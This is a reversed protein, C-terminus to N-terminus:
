VAKARWDFLADEDEGDEDTEGESAGGLVEQLVDVVRRKKRTAPVAAAIAEDIQLEEAAGRNSKLAKLQAARELRQRCLM